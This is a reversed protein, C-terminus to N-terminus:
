LSRWLILLNRIFYTQDRKWLEVTSNQTLAFRLFKNSWCLISRFCCYGRSMSGKLTSSIGHPHPPYERIYAKYTHAAGFPITKPGRQDSSPYVSQGNQDSIPFPISKLTWTQSRTHFIVNKPRFYPWSKSLWAACGWWSNGSTSGRPKFHPCIKSSNQTLLHIRLSVMSGPFDRCDIFRIVTKNRFKCRRPSHTHRLLQINLTVDNCVPIFKSHFGKPEFTKM